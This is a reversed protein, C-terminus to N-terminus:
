RSETQVLTGGSIYGTKRLGTLMVGSGNFYYCSAEETDPGPITQLGTMVVGDKDFYYTKGSIVQWGTCRQGDTGFYFSEYVRRVSNYIKQWGTKLTGNTNAYFTKGDIVVSTTIKEGTTPDLVYRTNGIWCIGKLYPFSGAYGQLYDM